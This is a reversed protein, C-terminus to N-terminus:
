LDRSERHRDEEKGTSVIPVGGIGEDLLPGLDQLPSRQIQEASLVPQIEGCLTHLPDQIRPVILGDQNPPQLEPPPAGTPVQGHRRGGDLYTRKEPLVEEPVALETQM